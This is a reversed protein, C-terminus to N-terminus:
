DLGEPIQEKVMWRCDDSLRLVYPGFGGGMFGFGLHVEPHGCRACATAEVVRPGHSIAPTEGLDEMHLTIM